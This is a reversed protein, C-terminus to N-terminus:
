AKTKISPWHTSKTEGKRHWIRNINMCCSVFATETVENIGVQWHLKYWVVHAFIAAISRLWECIVQDSFSCSGLHIVMGLWTIEYLELVAGCQEIYRTLANECCTGMEWIVNEPWGLTNTKCHFIQYFYGQWEHTVKNGHGQTMPKLCVGCRIVWGSLEKVHLRTQMMCNCRHLLVSCSTAGRCLQM